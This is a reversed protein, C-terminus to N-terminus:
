CVLLAVILLYIFVITQKMSCQVASSTASAPTKNQHSQQLAQIDALSLSRNEYPECVSM